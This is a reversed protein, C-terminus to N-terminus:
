LTGNVSYGNVDYSFAEIDVFLVFLERQYIYLGNSQLIAYM